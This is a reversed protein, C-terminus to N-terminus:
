ADLKNAVVPQKNPYVLCEPHENLYKMQLSLKGPEWLDDADLFALFEGKALEMGKNRAAAPGSNPMYVYQLHQDYQHVIQATKDSSGDDVVILEFPKYDQKLVSEIAAALYRECNYAPIIM